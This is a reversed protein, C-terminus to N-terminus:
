LGLKKLKLSIKHLLETLEDNRKEAMARATADSHFQITDGNKIKESSVAFFLIKLEVRDLSLNVKEM